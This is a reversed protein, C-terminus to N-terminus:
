WLPCSLGGSPSYSAYKPLPWPRDLELLKILSSTRSCTSIRGPAMLNLAHWLVCVQCLYRFRAVISNLACGFESIDISHGSVSGPFKMVYIHVNYARTNCLWYNVSPTTVTVKPHCRGKRNHWGPFCPVLLFLFCLRPSPEDYRARGHYGLQHPLRCASMQHSRPACPTIKRGQCM